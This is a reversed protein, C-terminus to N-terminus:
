GKGKNGKGKTKSYVDREREKHCCCCGGSSSYVGVTGSDWDTHTSKPQLLPIVRPLWKHGVFVCIHTPGMKADKVILCWVSDM